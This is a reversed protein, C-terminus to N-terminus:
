FLCEIVGGTTLTPAAYKTLLLRLRPHDPQRRLLNFDNLLWVRENKEFFYLFIRQVM